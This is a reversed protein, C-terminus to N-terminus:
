SELVRKKVIDHALAIQGYLVNDNNISNLFEHQCTTTFNKILTTFKDLSINGCESKFLPYIDNCYFLFTERHIFSM